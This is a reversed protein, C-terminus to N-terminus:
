DEFGRFIGDPGIEEFFEEYDMNALSLNNEVSWMKSPIVRFARGPKDDLDVCLIGHDSEMIAHRDAVFIVPHVDKQVLSVIQDIDLGEYMADSLCEIDAQFGDDEDPAQVKKCLNKWKTDSSFDTRLM